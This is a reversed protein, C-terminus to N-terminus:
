YLFKNAIDPVATLFYQKIQKWSAQFFIQPNPDEEAEEFYVLSKMIHHYNHQTNPYQTKVRKLIDLLSERNNVYWYLDYFDRKKGRQSIAIIKMVAIDRADLINIYIKTLFPQKPVFYPYSIFSIKAGALEGYLTGAERFSTIWHYPTLIKIIEETNFEQKPNFFDLDVSVRQDFQLTLATGGALYWGDAKLWKQQSLIELANYTAQSLHSTIIKVQQHTTDM